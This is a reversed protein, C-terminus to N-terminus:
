YYREYEEIIMELEEDEEFNEDFERLFTQRFNRDKKLTESLFKLLTKEDLKSMIEGITKSSDVFDGNRLKYYVAVEHKCTDGWDYPCSCFSEVIVNETIRVYVDYISTGFVVANFEGEDVKEVKAVDSDKFYSKGRGLIKSDVLKEFNDLTM